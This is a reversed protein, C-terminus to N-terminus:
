YLTTACMQMFNVASKFIVTCFGCGGQIVARAKTNTAEFFWFFYNVDYNNTLSPDVTVYGSYSLMNQLLPDTTLTSMNVLTQEHCESSTLSSISVEGCSVFGIIFFVVLFLRKM